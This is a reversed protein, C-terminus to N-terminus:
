LTVKLAKLTADLWEQDTMDDLYADNSADQAHRETQYREDEDMSLGNKTWTEWAHMAIMEHRTEWEFPSKFSEVKKQCSCSEPMESEDMGAGWEYDCETCTYRGDIDAITM